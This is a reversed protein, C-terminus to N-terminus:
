GDMISYESLEKDDELLEQRLWLFQKSPESGMKAQIKQKVNDITDSAAVDIPITKNIKVRIDM